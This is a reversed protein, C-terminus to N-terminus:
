DALRLEKMIRDRSERTIITGETHTEKPPEVGDRIWKFLLEATEYGHRYPNLLCTAFFGTPEDKEFESKSVGGGIGIGIVTEADFGRNELARVAGLVGEDNIACALWRKIAPQRTLMIDAADFASPVDTHKQPARFVNNAPFGSETLASIAGETRNFATDLEDFTVVLLGTNEMDWGRRTLEEYLAFGVSRGIKSASIGMYPVDLFNGDSDIFRDDVTFVKMKYSNARAVVAPGLRVDIPCIVFGQAGQAALNDIASLVKGGDTAGIKVLDFGYKDACEQAYKWENQFWTQEPNSVLFGIKIKKPGNEGCGSTIVLALTIFFIFFTRKVNSIM